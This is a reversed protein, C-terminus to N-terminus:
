YNPKMQVRGIRYPIEPEESGPYGTQQRERQIYSSKSIGPTSMNFLPKMHMTSFYKDGYSGEPKATGLSGDWNYSPYIYASDEKPEHTMNYNRGSFLQPPSVPSRPLVSHFCSRWPNQGQDPQTRMATDFAHVSNHQPQLGSLNRQERHDNTDKKSRKKCYHITQITVGVLLALGIGPLAAVLILDLTNWLQDCKAGM